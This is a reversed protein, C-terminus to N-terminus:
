DGGILVRSPLIGFRKVFIDRLRRMALKYQKRSINGQKYEDFLIEKIRWYSDFADDFKGVLVRSVDRRLNDKLYDPLKEM